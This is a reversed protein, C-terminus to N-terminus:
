PDMRSFWGNEKDPDDTAFWNKWWATTRVPVIAANVSRLLELAESPRNTDCPDPEPGAQLVIGSGCSHRVVRSDLADITKPGLNETTAKDLYTLWAVTDLTQTGRERFRATNRDFMRVGHFRLAISLMLPYAESEQEDFWAIEYGLGAGAHTFEYVECWTKFWELVADAGRTTVYNLPFTVYAYGKDGFTAFIEFSYDHCEDIAGKEPGSKVYYFKYEDSISKVSLTARVKEIAKKTLKLIRRSDEHSYYLQTGPNMMELWADFIAQAHKEFGQHSYFYAVFAPRGVVITEDLETFTASKEYWDVM